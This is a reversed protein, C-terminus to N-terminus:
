RRRHRRRDQQRREADGDAAGVPVRRDAPGAHLRDRDQRPHRDDGAPTRGAEAEPQDLRGREPQADRGHGGPPARLPPGSGLSRGRAPLVVRDQRHRREPGAHLQPLPAAQRQRRAHVEAGAVVGVHRHLDHQAASRLQAGDLHRRARTERVARQGVIRLRTRRSGAHHADALDGQRDERRTCHHRLRRTRRRTRLRPGLDGQRQRHDSRVDAALGEPLGHDQNGVAGRRDQREVGGPLRRRHHRHDHRRLHRRQPQARLGAHVQRPGGAAQAPVGVAPRGVERRHGPLPRQPQARVDRRQLRHPLVGPDNRTGHRPDLGDEVAVRQPPRDPQAPQLRPQRAHPAVDALRGPQAEVADRRDSARLAPGGAGATARAARGGRAWHLLVGPALLRFGPATRNM